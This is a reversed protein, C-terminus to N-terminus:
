AFVIWTLMSGVYEGRNLYEGSKVSASTLDSALNGMDIFKGCIGRMLINGAYQGSIISALKLGSALDSM